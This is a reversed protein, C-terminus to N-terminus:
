PKLNPEVLDAANYPLRNEGSIRKINRLAPIVTAGTTGAIQYPMTGYDYTFKQPAATFAQIQSLPTYMDRQNNGLDADPEVAELVGILQGKSNFLGGGSNGEKNHLQSATLQRTFDRMADSQDAPNLGAILQKYHPNFQYPTGLKKTYFNDLRALENSKSTVGEYTGGNVKIAAQQKEHGTSYVLDGPQSQDSDAITVEPLVGRPLNTVKVYALDRIDDLKVLQGAYWQGNSGQMMIEGRADEVGHADTLAISDNPGVGIAKRQDATLDVLNASETTYGSTAPTKDYYPHYAVHMTSGIARKVNPDDPNVRATGGFQVDLPM